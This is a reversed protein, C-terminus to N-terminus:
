SREAAGAIVWDLLVGYMGEVATKATAEDVGRPEFSAAWVIRAGSGNSSVTVRARYDDVPLPNGEAITYEIWHADDDRDTLTERVPAGNPDVYVNRTMGVGDGDIETKAVGNMWSTDGFDAVLGWVADFSVDTERAVSVETM